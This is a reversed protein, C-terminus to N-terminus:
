KEERTTLRNLYETSLVFFVTLIGAVIGAVLASVTRKPWVRAEPTVPMTLARIDGGAPLTGSTNEKYVAAAVSFRTIAQDISRRTGELLALERDVKDHAFLVDAYATQAATVSTRVEDISEQLASMESAGTTSLDGARERLRLEAYRELLGPMMRPTQVIFQMSSQDRPEDASKMNLRAPSLQDLKEALLKKVYPLKSDLESKQQSYQLIQTELRDKEAIYADRKAVAEEVTYNGFEQIFNRIWSELIYRTEEAGTSEVTLALVPSLEKRVTTDQLVTSEVSFAKIFDEIKPPAVSFKETFDDRVDEIVSQSKLLAAVTDPNPTEGEPVAPLRNVFIEASVKYKSNVFLLAVYTLVAALIAVGIILWRRKWLLLIQPGLPDSAEDRRIVPM